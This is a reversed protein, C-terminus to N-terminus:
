KGEYVFISEIEVTIDGPLENVGIASRAHWGSDGFLDVLLESAGNVVQPQQNFGAASAVFGLLKAVGTLRNLDGLHEHLWALTNLMCIRAAERGEEITRDAGVKGTFAPAGDVVPGQGSVFLMQGVQRVPVYVGGRAPPAPLSLGMQDLRGYVDM